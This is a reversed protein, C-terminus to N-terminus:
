AACGSSSPPSSGRCMSSIASHRSNPLKTTLNNKTVDSSAFSMMHYIIYLLANEFRFQSQFLLNNRHSSCLSPLKQQKNRIPLLDHVAATPSKDQCRGGLVVQAKGNLFAVGHLRRSKHPIHAVMSWAVIFEIM